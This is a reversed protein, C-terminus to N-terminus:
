NSKWSKGELIDQIMKGINYTYRTRKKINQIEIAGYAMLDKINFSKKNTNEIMNKFSNISIFFTNNDINRFNILFGAILSHRSAELLGNVQNERIM